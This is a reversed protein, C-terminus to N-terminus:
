SNQEPRCNMIATEIEITRQVAPGAMMRQYHATLNPFTEPQLLDRGM